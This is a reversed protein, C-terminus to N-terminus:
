DEGLILSKNYAAMVADMITGRFGARELELLAEATTGGPSTVMNRLVSLHKDSERALLASGVVTNIALRNAMERSLGLHVGADVLSELFTFVYAPGSASLATAMDIYKEEDVHVSEGLTSIIRDAFALNEEGVDITNTWVSVGQGIQAPTNPMVRIVNSHNSLEIITDIRIGAAISLVTQDRGLKGKINNLVDAIQQPKVAIVIMDCTSIAELNDSSTQAGYQQHLYDRRNDDKEGISINNNDVIGSVLVQAIIAEAMVGGGVFSLKKEKAM